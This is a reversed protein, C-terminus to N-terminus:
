FKGRVCECVYKLQMKGTFHVSEPPFFCTFFVSDLLFYFERLIRIHSVCQRPSIFLKYGIDDRGTLPQGESAEEM